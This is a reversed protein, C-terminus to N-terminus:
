LRHRAACCGSSGEGAMHQFLSCVGSLSALDRADMLCVVSQLINTPLDTMLVTKHPRTMRALYTADDRIEMQDVEMQSTLSHFVDPLNLKQTTQKAQKAADWPHLRCGVVHCSSNRAEELAAVLAEKRAQENRPVISLVSAQLHCLVFDFDKLTTGRGANEHCACACTADLQIILRETLVLLARLFRVFDCRCGSAGNVCVVDKFVNLTPFVLQIWDDTTRQLAMPVATAGRVNVQGIEAYVPALLEITRDVGVASPAAATDAM